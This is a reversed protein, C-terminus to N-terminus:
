SIRLDREPERASAPARRTALWVLWLLLPPGAIWLALSTLSTSGTWHQGEFAVNLNAIGNGVNASVSGHGEPGTLARAVLALAPRLAVLVLLVWYVAWALLLHRAQWRRLLGM